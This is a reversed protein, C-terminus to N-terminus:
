RRVPRPHTGVCDDCAQVPPNRWHHRGLKASVEFMVFKYACAAFRSDGHFRDLKSTIALLPPSSSAAGGSSPM